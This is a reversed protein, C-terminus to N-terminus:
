FLSTPFAARRAAPELSAWGVPVEHMQNDRMSRFRIRGNAKGYEYIDRTLRVDDLCYKKLADMEGRRYMQIAELGTGSKSDGLTAEAISQLHVRHGRVKVVDDLLDLLPVDALKTLLYPQLVPLDFHRINFGVLLDAERLLPDLARLQPEEFTLFSQTAYSYIGCVSIGMERLNDRGVEAFTRQTELDLVLVNPM